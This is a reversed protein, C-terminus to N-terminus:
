AVHKEKRDNLDYAWSSKPRIITVVAFVELVLVIILVPLGEVVTRPKYLLSLWPHSASFYVVSEGGAQVNGYRPDEWNRFSTGTYQKGNVVYQYVVLKHGSWHEKSVIAVAQQSDELLWYNRWGSLAQRVLFYGLGAALILGVLRPSFSRM